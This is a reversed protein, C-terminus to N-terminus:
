ANSLATTWKDLYMKQVVEPDGDAKSKKYREKWYKEDDKAEREDRRKRKRDADAAKRQAQVLIAEARIKEAEAEHHRTQMITQSTSIKM